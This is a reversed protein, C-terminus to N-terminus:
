SGGTTGTGDGSRAFRGMYKRDMLEKIRMAWGGSTAVPGYFLLAKGDGANLLTLDRDKSRYKRGAEGGALTAALNQVLVEGMRLSSAESQPARPAAILATGEGTAFLEPAGQVQLTDDLLLLGHGDLPLGSERFLPQARPGPAWVAIDTPHVRGDSLRVFDTGVEAAGTGLKLTIDHRALVKEVQDSWAPLRGGFLESRGDLVSIIVDSAGKRDLRARICLALEIGAESAGIVVVRRPEPRVEAALADLAAVLATVQEVTGSSHAHPPVVSSDSLAVSIFDYSLSSGDELTLSKAKADIRTAKGLILRSGSAGGLRKLDIAIQDPRYRGDIFGPVMGSHLQVTGTTVLVVDAQPLKRKALAELVLLNAPSSGLLLLRPLSM